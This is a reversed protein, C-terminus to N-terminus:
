SPFVQAGIAAAIVQGAEDQIDGIVVRGGAEAIARAHAAGMGSAGGSILAVKSRLASM